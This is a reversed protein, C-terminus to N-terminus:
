NNNQGLRLHHIVKKAKIKIYFTHVDMSQGYKLFWLTSLEIRVAVATVGIQGCQGCKKM